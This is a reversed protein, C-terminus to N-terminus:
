RIASYWMFSVRTTSAVVLIDCASVLVAHAHTTYLTCRVKRGVTNAVNKIAKTLWYRMLITKKVKVVEEAQVDENTNVDRCTTAIYATHCTLRQVATDSITHM